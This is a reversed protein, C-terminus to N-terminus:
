KKVSMILAFTWKGKELLNKLLLIININITHGFNYNQTFFISLEVNLVRFDSFYDSSILLPAVVLALLNIIKIRIITKGIYIYFHKEM